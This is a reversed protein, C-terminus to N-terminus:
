GSQLGASQLDEFARNRLTPTGGDGSENASESDACSRSSSRCGGESAKLSAHSVWARTHYRTAGAVCAARKGRSPAHLLPRPAGGRM